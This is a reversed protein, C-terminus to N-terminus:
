VPMMPFRQPLSDEGSGKACGPLVREDAGAGFVFLVEVIGLFTPPGALVRPDLVEVGCVEACCSSALLFAASAASTRLFNRAWPGVGLGQFSHSKLM